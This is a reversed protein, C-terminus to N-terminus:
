LPSYTDMLTWYCWLGSTCNPMTSAMIIGSWCIFTLKVQFETRSAM